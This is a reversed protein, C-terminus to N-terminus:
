EVNTKQLDNFHDICVVFSFIFHFKCHTMHACTTTQTHTCNMLISTSFCPHSRPTSATSESVTECVSGAEEIFKKDAASGGHHCIYKGMKAAGKCQVAQLEAADHVERTHFHIEQNFASGHTACSRVHGFYVNMCVPVM